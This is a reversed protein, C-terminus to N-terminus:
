EGGGLGSKDVSPPFTDADGEKLQRFLEEIVTDQEIDRESDM